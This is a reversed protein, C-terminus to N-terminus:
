REYIGALMGRALVHGRGARQLNRTTSVDQPSLEIDLTFVLLRYTHPGHGPIPGPGHYRRIGFTARALRVRKPPTNLEGQALSTKTAPLIAVTHVLPSRTPADIDEFWIVTTQADHPVATWHLEPSVNDGAGPGAYLRPIPETDAYAPSSVELTQTGAWGPDGWISRVPNARLGTILRGIGM